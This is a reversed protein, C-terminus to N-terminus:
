THCVTRSAVLTARTSEERALFAMQRLEKRGIRENIRFKGRLCNSENKVVSLLGTIVGCILIGDGPQLKSTHLRRLLNASNERFNLEDIAKLELSVIFRGPTTSFDSKM